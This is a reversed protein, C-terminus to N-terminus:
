KLTYKEDQIDKEKAVIEPDRGCDCNCNKPRLDELKILEEKLNSIVTDNKRISGANKTESSSIDIDKMNLENISKNFSETSSLKLEVSIEQSAKITFPQLAFAVGDANETMALIYGTAGMPLFISGDTYAFVYRGSGDNKLGGKTYIKKDPVILFVDLKERYTGTIQVALEAQTNGNLEKLLVDVNFWGFTQISFQYYVATPNAPNVVEKETFLPVGPQPNSVIREEVTQPGNEVIQKERNEELQKKRNLLENSRDRYQQCSDICDSLKRLQPDPLQLRESEQQIYQYIADYDRETLDPFATGVSGFENKQNCFYIYQNMKLGESLHALKSALPNDYGTSTDKLEPYNGQFRPFHVNYGRVLLTDGSYQRLYHALDPGVTTKGLIHCARCTSNFISKGIEMKKDYATVPLTDPNVWNLQGDATEEGKFLKMGPEKYRTPLAVDIKKKLTASQGKKPNIYIMGGSSLPEEGSKTTLGGRIMDAITYAEKIELIVQKNDGADIAGQPIKLLAGHKTLLVTDRDTNITYESAPMDAPTSLLANKGTHSCAYIYILIILLLLSALRIKM